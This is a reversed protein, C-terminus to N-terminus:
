DGAKARPPFATHGSNQIFQELLREVRQITEKTAVLNTELRTVRDQSQELRKTREVLDSIDKSQRENTSSVNAAWWVSAVLQLCVVVILSVSITRDLHWENRLQEATMFPETPSM